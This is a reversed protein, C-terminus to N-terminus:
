NARSVERMSRAEDQSVKQRESDAEGRFFTYSLTVTHLDDLHRDNVLESDIFFSVAMEASEGPELHQEAFCFCDIKNFHLGAKFPTVNFTAMGTVPVDSRNIVTYFALTEEGLRVRLERQAPRFRGPLNAAVDANFRVAIVRDAVTAPVVGAVQTAGGFGTVRCFVQYLPVAAYAMGLMGVVVATLVGATAAKRTGGHGSM